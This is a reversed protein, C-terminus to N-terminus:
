PFAFMVGPALKTEYELLYEVTYTPSWLSLEYAILNIDFRTEVGDILPSFGGHARRPDWIDHFLIVDPASRPLARIEERIPCDTTGFCHADLFWLTPGPPRMNQLIEASNGHHLVFNDLGAAVMRRRTAEVCFAQIDIGAYQPVMRALEVASLGKDLGTEVIVQIDLEAVIQQIRAKLFRDELAYTLIRSM